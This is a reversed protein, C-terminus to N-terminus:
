RLYKEIFEDQPIRTLKRGEHESSTTFVMKDTVLKLPQTLKSLEIWKGNGNSNVEITKFQDPLISNFYLYWANGNDDTNKHLFKLWAEDMELKQTFVPWHILLPETDPIEITIRIESKDVKHKQGMFIFHTTQNHRQKHARSETTLNVAQTSLVKSIPVDGKTLGEDLIFPLHYRSTFHYLIM